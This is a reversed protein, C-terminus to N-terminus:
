DAPTARITGDVAHGTLHRARGPQRGTGDAAPRRSRLHVPDLHQEGYPHRNRRRRWRQFRHAGAPRRGGHHHRVVAGNMSLTLTGNDLTVVFTNTSRLNTSLNQTTLWNLEDPTTSNVPGNSIGVFNDSPNVANQYTDICVAIGSIGSFGLGGGTAGVATPSTTPSALVLAMGDGGETGGGGITATFTATLGEANVPTPWFTTGAEFDTSAQTLDVSNNAGVRANGNVDWGGGGPDSLAVPTNPAASISVGGVSHTDTLGGNGGSFGLLVDPGVNVATSLLLTGDMTLTLTGNALTVNFLHTTRLSAVGTDTQLWNLEDPVTPSVPGNTIGVFNDSPNVANQYTDLAVAIGPIGSFGLGGGEAGVATPSTSDDALVLAMGDAGSTGGGGITTTFTVSLNQTPLATPWFATGAQNTKNAQTLNLVGGSLASSGNLQWGGATPDGVATVPGGATVTVNGITQTAASAGTTGTFGIRVNPPPDVLSDIVEVNDVYVTVVGRAITVKMAVSGFLNPVSTSTALFHLRRPAKPQTGNSIGVFDKASGGPVRVTSLVVAVGPLGGFGFDSGRHRHGDSAVTPNALM